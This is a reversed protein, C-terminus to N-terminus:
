VFPPSSSSLSIHYYCSRKVKNERVNGNMMWVSLFPFPRGSSISGNIACKVDDELMYGDCEVHEMLCLWPARSDGPLRRM